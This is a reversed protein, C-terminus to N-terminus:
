SGVLANKELVAKELSIKDCVCSHVGEHTCDSWGANFGEEMYNATHFRLTKQLSQVKAKM